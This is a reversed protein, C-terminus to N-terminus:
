QWYEKFHKNSWNGKQLAKQFSNRNQIKVLYKRIYDYESYEISVLNAELPFWILIDVITFQNGCIWTNTKLHDNVKNLQQTIENKLYMKEFAYKFLSSISKFPLPTNVVIQKFIQKLIITPMLSAEAYNKWFFYHAIEVDHNSQINLKQFKQSLFECIASTETLYISTNTDLIHITPFKLPLLEIPLDSVITNKSDIIRYDCNLEELLWLIRQSRSNQLHYLTIIM